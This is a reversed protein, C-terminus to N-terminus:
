YEKGLLSLRQLLSNRDAKGTGAEFKFRPADPMGYLDHKSQRSMSSSYEYGAEALVDLAWINDRNISYSPARYGLVNKGSIDELFLRTKVVDEKFLRRRDLTNVRAHDWGHSALEHGQDVVRKVMQPYRQAVWGLTFFTAKVGKEDFLQLVRDINREVRCDINQWDKKDVCSEFASVQFYDEVDVSMANTPYSCFGEKEVQKIM